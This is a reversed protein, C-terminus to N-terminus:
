KYFSPNLTESDKGTGSTSLKPNMLYLSLDKMEVSDLIKFSICDTWILSYFSRNTVKWINEVELGKNM